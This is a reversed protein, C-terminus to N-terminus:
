SRHLVLSTRDVHISTCGYQGSRDSSATPHSSCLPPPYACKIHIPSMARLYCHTMDLPVELDEFSRVVIRATTQDRNYLLRVKDTCVWILMLPHFPLCDYESTAYLERAQKPIDSAPFLLGKYLDGAPGNDLKWDVLEAVVQGNWTEDFQYVMVRHFQTLDKIVGVVVKLFTDLDPAGGLQDNIQSMVAFVDMMGINPSPIHPNRQRRSSASRTLLPRRPARRMAELAAMPKARSTTSELIDEVRLTWGDEGQLRDMSTTPDYTAPISAVLTRESTDTGSSSSEPSDVCESEPIYAPPPHVPNLLDTEPELELIILRSNSGPSRHISCWCIWPLKGQSPDAADIAAGLGSLLFILM